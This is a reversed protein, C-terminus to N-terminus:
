LMGLKVMAAHMYKFWLYTFILNVLFATTSCFGTMEWNRGMVVEPLKMFVPIICLVITKHVCVPCLSLAPLANREMCNFEPSGITGQSSSSTIGSCLCLGFYGHAGDPIAWDM